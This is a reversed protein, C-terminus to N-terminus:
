FVFSCVFIFLLFSLGGATIQFCQFYKRFLSVACYYYERIPRQKECEPVDTENAKFPLFARFSELIVVKELDFCIYDRLSSFKGYSEHKFIM